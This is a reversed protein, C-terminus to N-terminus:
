GHLYMLCMYVCRYVSGTVDSSYEPGGVVGLLSSGRDDSM